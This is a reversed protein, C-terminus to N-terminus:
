VLDQKENSVEKLKVIHLVQGKVTMTPFLSLKSVYFPKPFMKKGNLLRYDVNVKIQNCSTFREHIGVSYNGGLFLPKRIVLSCKM